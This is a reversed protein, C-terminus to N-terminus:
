VGCLNFLRLGVYLDNCYNKKFTKEHDGGFRLIKFIKKCRILTINYINRYSFNYTEIKEHSNYCLSIGM